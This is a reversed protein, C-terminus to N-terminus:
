YKKLLKRDKQHDIRHLEQDAQELVVNDMDEVIDIQVPKELLAM